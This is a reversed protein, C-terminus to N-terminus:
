EAGIAKPTAQGMNRSTGAAGAGKREWCSDNEGAFSKCNGGKM